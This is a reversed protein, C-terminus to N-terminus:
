LAFLDQQSEKLKSKELRKKQKETLYSNVNSKINEVLNGQGDAEVKTKPIHKFYILIALAKISNTTQLYLEKNSEYTRRLANRKEMLENIDRRIFIYEVSGFQVKNQKLLM